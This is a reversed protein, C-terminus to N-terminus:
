LIMRTPQELKSSNQVPSYGNRSPVASNVSMGVTYNDALGFHHFQDWVVGPVTVAMGFLPFIM